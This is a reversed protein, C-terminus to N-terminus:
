LDDPVVVADIRTVMPERFFWSCQNPALMLDPVEVDTASATEFVRAKRLEIVDVSLRVGPGYGFFESAKLLEAGREVVVGIGLACNRSSLMSDLCAPYAVHQPQGVGSFLFSVFRNISRTLRRIGYWHIM